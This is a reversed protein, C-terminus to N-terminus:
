RRLGPMFRDVTADLTAMADGDRLAPMLLGHALNAVLMPAGVRTGLLTALRLEEVVQPLPADATPDGSDLSPLVRATASSSGSCRNLVTAMDAVSLGNARGMAAAEYTVLRNCVAIAGVVLRAARGTGAEGFHVVKPCITELLPRMDAIAQASGGCLIAGVDAIADLLECHLPADIWGVGRQQLESAFRRAADPDGPTQDIVTKGASLGSSLGEAGFLINAAQADNAAAMFVVDASVALDRLSAAATTGAPTANGTHVLVSHSQALQRAVLAALPSGGVIGIKM